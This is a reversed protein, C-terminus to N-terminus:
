DAVYKKDFSVTKDAPVLFKDLTRNMHEPGYTEYTPRQLLNGYADHLAVDFASACILAALWPVPEGVTLTANTENLLKPLAQEEFDNGIEVPHGFDSNNAWAKAITACFRKMVEHRPEYPLTSPWGWQVSLPTEGWGEATRGDRSQIRMCVRACTVSTLTEPGFKIPM